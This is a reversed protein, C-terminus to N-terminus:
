IGIKALMDALQGMTLALDPHSAEFREIGARLGEGFGKYQPSSESENTQLLDSIDGELKQLLARSEDDVSEVQQLEAHLQKLREHLQQQQEM